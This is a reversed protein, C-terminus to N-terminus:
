WGGQAPIEARCDICRVQELVGLGLVDATVPIAGWGIPRTPFLPPVPWPARHWGRRACRLRATRLTAAARLRRSASPRPRM